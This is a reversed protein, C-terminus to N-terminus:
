RKSGDNSMQIRAWITNVAVDQNYPSTRIREKEELSCVQSLVWLVVGGAEPRGQWVPSEVWEPNQGCKGRNNGALSQDTSGELDHFLGNGLTEEWAKCDDM